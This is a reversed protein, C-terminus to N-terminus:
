LQVLVAPRFFILFNENLNTTHIMENESQFSQITSPSPVPSTLTIDWLGDMQNRKGSLVLHTYKVAHIKKDIIDTCGDGCLKGLSILSAIHFYKFVHADRAKKPKM